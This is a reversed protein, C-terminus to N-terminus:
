RCLVKRCASTLIDCSDKTVLVVDEIRIGGWGPIYIGPEITIVMNKQLISCSNRSISPGEHTELGIGHGLSHIFYRGLGKYAIYQRSICDIHSAEIGPKIQEIAKKQADRVINYIRRYKRDIRGLFVTRTLDSNYGQNITGLDLIIGEGRKINKESARAHPMSANKGSAVIAEFSAGEIGKELIRCQVRNKIWRESLGPRILGLAYDMIECGDKCARRIHKIEEADKIMRLSEVIKKVPLLKKGKLNKKLDAYGSHSFNSSEFGVRQLRKKTCIEGTSAYLNKHKATQFKCNKAFKEYEEKYRADSILFMGRHSVLLIADDGRAGTLYLINEKKRVLLADLSHSKLLKLLRQQRETYNM